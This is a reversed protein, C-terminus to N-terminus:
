SKQNPKAATTEDDNLGPDPYPPTEPTEEEGKKLGYSDSLTGQDNPKKPAWDRPAEPAADDATQNDTATESAKTPQTVTKKHTSSELTDDHVPNAELKPQLSSQLSRGAQQDPCLNQAGTALHQHVKRYQDTLENVLAATKEFHTTVEEKYRDMEIRSGNLEEELRKRKIESGGSKGLLYGILVGVALAVVAVIWITEQEV